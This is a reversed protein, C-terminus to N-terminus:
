GHVEASRGPRHAGAEHREVVMSTRLLVLWALTLALESPDVPKHLVPIGGLAEADFHASLLAVAPRSTARMAHHLLSLGEVPAMREDCLVVDFSGAELLALAETGSRAPVCGFGEEKLLAQCQALVQPDDDVALVVPRAIDAFAARDAGARRTAM